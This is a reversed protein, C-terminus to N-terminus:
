ELVSRCLKWSPLCAAVLFCVGREAVFRFLVPIRKEALADTHVAGLQSMDQESKDIRRM